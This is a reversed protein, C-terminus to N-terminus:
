KVGQRRNGNELSGDLVQENEIRTREDGVKLGAVFGDMWVSAMANVLEQDTAPTTTNRIMRIARQQAMYTMSATDFRLSDLVKQVPWEAAATDTAIIVASLARFDPHDPRDPFDPDDNNM